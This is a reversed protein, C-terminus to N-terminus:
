LGRSVVDIIQNPLFKQLYLETKWFASRMKPVLRVVKDMEDIRTLHVGLEKQIETQHHM